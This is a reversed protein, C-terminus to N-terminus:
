LCFSGIFLLSNFKQEWCDSIKNEWANENNNNIFKIIFVKRNQKYKSLINWFSMDCMFVKIYDFLDSKKRIITFNIISPNLM